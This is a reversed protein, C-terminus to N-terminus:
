QGFNWENNVVLVLNVQRVQFGPEDLPLWYFINERGTNQIERFNIIRVICEERSARIMRMLGGRLKAKTALM